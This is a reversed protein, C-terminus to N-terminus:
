FISDFFTSPGMIVSSNSANEIMQDTPDLFPSAPKEQSISWSESVELRGPQLLNYAVRFKSAEKFQVETVLFAASNPDSVSGVEVCLLGVTAAIAKAEFKFQLKFSEPTSYEYGTLYSGETAGFLFATPPVRSKRKDRFQHAFERLLPDLYDLIDPESFKHVNRFSSSALNFRM